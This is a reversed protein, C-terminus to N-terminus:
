LNLAEAQVMQITIVDAAGTTICLGVILNAVTMDFGASIANVVVVPIVAHGTAALNHVMIFEGVMVGTAGISRVTCIVDVWAEDIVATGAPKTFSLRATDATTGATGVAVDITSAAIGAGTKTMNFKWRLITGVQLKNTPVSLNSGTIYTRTAAAPAQSATSFNNTGGRVFGAEDKQKLSKHTLDVFSSSVGAAPTAISTAAINTQDLQSM